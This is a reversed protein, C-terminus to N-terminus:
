REGLRALLRMVIGSSYRTAVTSVFKSFDVHATEDANDSVVRVVVFPCRREFCVQAVAAGEMEVCLAQSFVGRVRSAHAADAIFSDGSVILGSHLQPSLIGLERLSAVLQTDGGLQSMFEHCALRALEVLDPSSAFETVGLLPVEGRPFLPRADMDHQALSSGIVVDGVRIQPQIGGAVGVFVIADVNFRDLLTTVTSASAVKGWRSFTLVTPCTALSGELYDRGGVTSTRDVHMASALADVEETMAGLVGVKM